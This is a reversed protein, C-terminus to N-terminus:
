GTRHVVVHSVADRRQECGAGGELHHYNYYTVLRSEPDSNPSSITPSGAQGLPGFGMHHGMGCITARFEYQPGYEVDHGM